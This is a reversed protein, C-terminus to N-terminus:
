IEAGLGKVDLGESLLQHTEVLIQPRLLHGPALGLLALHFDVSM